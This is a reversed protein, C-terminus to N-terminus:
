GVNEDKEKGDRRHTSREIGRKVWLCRRREMRFPVRSVPDSRRVQPAPSPSPVKGIGPLGFSQTSIVEEAARSAVSKQARAATHVRVASFQNKSARPASTRRPFYCNPTRSAHEAM